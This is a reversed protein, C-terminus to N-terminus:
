DELALKVAAEVSTARAESCISEAVDDGVVARMQQLHRELIERDRTSAPTGLRERLAAAAAALTLGKRPRDQQAAICALAELLRAVGRKHEVMAFRRLGDRYRRTAEPLDGRSAAVAGMDALSTAIGWESGLREFAELARTYL